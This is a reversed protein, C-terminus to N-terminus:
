ALGRLEVLLSNLNSNLPVGAAKALARVRNSWGKAFAKSAPHEKTIRQIYRLLRLNLYETMSGRAGQLFGVARGRGMNVATDFHILCLPWPVGECGSKLWYDTRYISEVEQHTISRVSQVPLNLRKRWNDYTRQTVGLNTAGGPDSPHNVYGGERALVFSLSRTFFPEGPADAFATGTVMVFTPDNM